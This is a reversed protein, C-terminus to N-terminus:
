SSGAVWLQVTLWPNTEVTVKTVLHLFLVTSLVM